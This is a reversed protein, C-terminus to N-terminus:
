VITISHLQFAVISSVYYSYITCCERNRHALDDKLCGIIRSLTMIPLVTISTNFTIRFQDVLFFQNHSFPSFNFSLNKKKKKTSFFLSITQNPLFIIFYNILSNYHIESGHILYMYMQCGLHMSDKKRVRPANADPIKSSNWKIM